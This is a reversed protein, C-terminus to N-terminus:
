RFEWGFRTGTGDGKFQILFPSQRRNLDKITDHLRVKPNKGRKRPLPDDFWKVWQMEEAASLLLVQNVSPQAFTKLVHAGWRFIRNGRDYHPLLDGVPIMDVTAAHVTDDDNLLEEWLFVNAFAEGSATMQFSSSALTRLSLGGQKGDMESHPGNVPDVQEIHGQYLMWLLIYGRIGLSRLYSASVPEPIAMSSRALAEYKPALLFLYALMFEGFQDATARSSSAPRLPHLM